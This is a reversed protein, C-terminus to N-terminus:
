DCIVIQRPAVPRMNLQQRALREIREPRSLYAKEARLIDIERQERNIQRELRRAERGLQWTEVKIVYLGALLALALLPLLLKLWTGNM